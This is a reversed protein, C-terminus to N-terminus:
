GNESDTYPYQSLLENIEQERKASWQKDIQDLLQIQRSFKVKRSFGNINPHSIAYTEAMESTIGTFAWYLLENVDNTQKKLTIANRDRVIYYYMDQSIQVCPTGDDRSIGFTLLESIPADIIKAIRAVKKKIEEISIM